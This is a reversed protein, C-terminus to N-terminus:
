IIKVILYFGFISLASFLFNIVHTIETFYNRYFNQDFLAAIYGVAYSITDYLGPYYMNNRFNYQQFDGLTKLYEFRVLGNIHHFYEDSSLGITLSSWWALLILFSFFSILIKNINSM